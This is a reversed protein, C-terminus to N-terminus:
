DEGFPLQEDDWGVEESITMLASETLGERLIKKLDDFPAVSVMTHGDHRIGAEDDRICHFNIATIAQRENVQLTVSWTHRPWRDITKGLTNNRPM